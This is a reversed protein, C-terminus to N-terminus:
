WINCLINTLINNFNKEHKFDDNNILFVGKNGFHTHRLCPQSPQVWQTKEPLFYFSCNKEM